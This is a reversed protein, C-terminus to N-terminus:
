KYPMEHTNVADNCITCTVISRRKRVPDNGDTTYHVTAGTTATALALYAGPLQPSDYAPVFTVVAARPQHQGLFLAGPVGCSLLCFNSLLCIYM